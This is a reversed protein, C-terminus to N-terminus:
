RPRRRSVTLRCSLRSSAAATTLRTLLRHMFAPKDVLAYLANEVGMWTAIPDWLSLYPDAGWPRVDLLGDFLEHAAALRRETEAMASKMSDTVQDAYLIVKANVNRACRGITQILSTRSRLFGERDADLMAVLSVEPLDLGERLLNVGVVVDYKGRRLNNLIEV